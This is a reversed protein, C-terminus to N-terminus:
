RQMVGKRQANRGQNPRTQTLDWSEWQEGTEATQGSYNHQELKVSASLLNNQKMTTKQVDLLAILGFRAKSEQRHPVAGSPPQKPSWGQSRSKIPM